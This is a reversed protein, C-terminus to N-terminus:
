LGLAARAPGDTIVIKAAIRANTDHTDKLFEEIAVAEVSGVAQWFEFEVFDGAQSSNENYDHFVRISWQGSVQGSKYAAALETLGPAIAKDSPQSALLTTIKDSIRGASGSTLVARWANLDVKPTELGFQIHLKFACSTKGDNDVKLLGMQNWTGIGRTARDSDSSRAPVGRAHPPVVYSNTSRQLLSFSDFLNM